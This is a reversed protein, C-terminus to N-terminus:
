RTISCSEVFSSEVDGYNNWLVVRIFACKYWTYYVYMKQTNKLQDISNQVGRAM